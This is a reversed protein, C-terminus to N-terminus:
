PTPLTLATITRCQKGQTHLRKMADLLAQDVPQDRVSHAFGDVGQSGFTKANDRYFIHAIARPKYGKAVQRDVAKRQGARIDFSAHDTGLVQVATVGYAAGIRLQREVSERTYFTIDQAVDRVLGAHVYSDILGPTVFKGKLDVATVGARIRLQTTSGVWSIRDGDVVLTSGPVPDCGTCAILTFERLVTTAQAVPTIWTLALLAAAFRVGLQM